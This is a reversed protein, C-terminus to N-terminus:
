CSHTISVLLARTGHVGYLGDGMSVMFGMEWPCWLAWRGHDGYRGDGMSVM